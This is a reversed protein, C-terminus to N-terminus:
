GFSLKIIQAFWEGNISERCQTIVAKTGSEALDDIQHELMPNGEIGLIELKYLYGIERPLEQLQNDYMLLSNLNVLMGIEEPLWTLANSSLDLVELQRLLGIRPDLVKLQNHDLYLKKLFPAYSVFLAPSLSRM